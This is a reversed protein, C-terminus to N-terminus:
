MMLGSKYGKGRETCIAPTELGRKLSQGGDMHKIFVDAFLLMGASFHLMDDSSSALHHPVGSKLAKFLPNAFLNLM